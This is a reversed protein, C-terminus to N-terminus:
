STERSEVIGAPFEAAPPSDKRRMRRSLSPMSLVGLSAARGAATPVPMVM